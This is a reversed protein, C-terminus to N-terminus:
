HAVRKKVLKPKLEKYILSITSRHRGFHQAADNITGYPLSGEANMQQRLFLMIDQREQDKTYRDNSKLEKFIEGIM